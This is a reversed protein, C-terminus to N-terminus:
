NNFEFCKDVILQHDFAMEPLENLAFWQAEGADDGAKVIVEANAMVEFAFSILRGRPDRNPADFYGIFRLEDEKVAIGTEEKLERVAGAIVREDVEVFGGPLAWSGKYPVNKRKILLIEWTTSGKRKVVLDTTVETKTTKM